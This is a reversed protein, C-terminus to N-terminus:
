ANAALQYLDSRGLYAERVEPHHRIYTPTGEALTQGHNLVTITDCASMVVDMHHEVLLITLKEAQLQRMLRVFSLAESRNLGACPEDLLLLTPRSIIARAVELLRRHGYALSGATRLAHERLGVMELVRTAQELVEREERRQTPPRFLAGFIESRGSSHFGVMVNQLVTMEPFLKLNQFTRRIGLGARQDPRRRTIDHNQFLVRGSSPKAQGGILNLLTTKGAGNPGILGSISGEAIALSVHNVALLGGFRRSVDVLNLLDTM